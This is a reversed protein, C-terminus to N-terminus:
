CLGAPLTEAKDPTRRPASHAYKLGCRTFFNFWPLFNTDISVKEEKQDEEEEKEGGEKRLALNFGSQM